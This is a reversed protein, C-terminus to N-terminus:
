SSNNVSLENLRQEDARRMQGQDLIRSVNQSQKYRFRENAQNEVAQTRFSRKERQM